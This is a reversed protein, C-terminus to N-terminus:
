KWGFVIHCYYIMVLVDICHANELICYYGNGVAILIQQNLLDGFEICLREDLPLSRVDESKYHGVPDGAEEQSSM